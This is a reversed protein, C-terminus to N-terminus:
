GDQTEESEEEPAEYGDYFFDLDVHDPPAERAPPAGGGDNHEDNESM